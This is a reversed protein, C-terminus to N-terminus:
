NLTHFFTDLIFNVSQTSNLYYILTCYKFSIYIRCSVYNYAIYSVILPIFVFALRRAFGDNPNASKKKQPYRKKDGAM